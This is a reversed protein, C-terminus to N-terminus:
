PKRPQTTRSRSQWIPTERSSAVPRGPADGSTAGPRDRLWEGLLREIDDANAEPHSRRLNQRMLDVGTDFLDLTARLADVISRTAGIASM